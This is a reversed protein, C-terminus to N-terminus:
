NSAEPLQEQIPRAFRETLSRVQPLRDSAYDWAQPLVGAVTGYLVSDRQSEQGPVGFYGTVLFVVSLVLAAKFAGVVGGALRNVVTLKLAGVITEALRTVAFVGVQVALFILIFGVLPAVSASIGLSTAVAQGVPDMLQVSLAFAILLGAFSAVQKIVGTSFGRALGGALALGILIDLLNMTM